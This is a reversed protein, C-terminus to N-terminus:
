RKFATPIPPTRDQAAAGAAVTVVLVGAFLLTKM